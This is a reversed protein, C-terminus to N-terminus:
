HRVTLNSFVLTNQNMMGIYEGMLADKMATAQSAELHALSEWHVFVSITGDDAVTTFRNVFGPQRVVYEEKVRTDM